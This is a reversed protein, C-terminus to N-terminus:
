KEEPFELWQRGDLYPERTLKGGTVAQKLFYPTGSAVCEDRLSRAWDLQMERAGPGSEAGAVIWDLHLGIKESLSLGPYTASFARYINVPGLMPEVSIFNKGKWVRLLEPIRKDAMAQNEATVGIRVYGPPQALWAAPLMAAANEIRKTLFLWELGGIAACTEVLAFADDRWSQDVEADFIDMLSGCFVKKTIGQATAERAWKLPQKWYAPSTRKRPGGWAPIWHRFNNDREAFCKMCGPSTKSCGIWINFTFGAHTVGDKVTATWGITTEGM